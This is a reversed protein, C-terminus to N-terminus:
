PAEATDSETIRFGTVGEFRLAASLHSCGDKTRNIDALDEVIPYILEAEQAANTQLMNEMVDHVDMVGGLHGSFRGQADIDFEVYGDELGVLFDANFAQIPFSLDFPGAKVHGDVISAGEFTVVPFTPDTQYTQDPLLFGAVNVIPVDTSRFLTVTINDDNVLDDVDGLELMVLMRGENIGDQLLAVIAEGVLNAALTWVMAMQNDVGESGQPSIFDGHGCSLSLVGLTSACEPSIGADELCSTVCGSPDEGELCTDVCGPELAYTDASLLASDAENECTSQDAPTVEGDLNWGASVGDVAGDFYLRQLANLHTGSEVSWDERFYPLEPDETWHRPVDAAPAAANDTVEAETGDSVADDISSEGYCAALSLACLVLLSRKWRASM